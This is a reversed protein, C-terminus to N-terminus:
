NTAASALFADYKDSLFGISTQVERVTEKLLDVTPKLQLLQDVKMYIYLFSDIRARLSLLSSLKSNM